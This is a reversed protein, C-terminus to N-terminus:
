VPIPVALLVPQPSLISQWPPLVPPAPLSLFQSQAPSSPQYINWAPTTQLSDNHPKRLDLSPLPEPEVAPLSMAPAIKQAPHTAQIIVTTADVSSELHM